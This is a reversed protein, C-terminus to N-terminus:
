ESGSFGIGSVAAGEKERQDLTQPLRHDNTASMDSEHNHYMANSTAEVNRVQGVMIMDDVYVCLYLWVVNM